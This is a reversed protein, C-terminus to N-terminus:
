RAAKWMRDIWIVALSSAALIGAAASTSPLFIGSVTVSAHFLLCVLLNGRTRNYLWTYLFLTLGVATMLGTIGGPQYGNWLLPLRWIITAFAIVLSSLLPSLSEQLRPLAYGRWGSEEALPGGFLTIYIFSALITLIVELPPGTVTVQPTGGLALDIAYGAGLAAPYFLLALAYWGPATNQGAAPLVLRRLSPSGGLSFGVLLAPGAWLIGRLIWGAPGTQSPLSSAYPLCVLYLLGAVLWAYLANDWQRPVGEKILTLALAALSPGFAGIAVLHRFILPDQVPIVRPVFWLIWSFLFALGFFTPLPANIAIKKLTELPKMSPNM